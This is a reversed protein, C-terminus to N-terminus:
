KLSELYTLLAQLDGGAISNPPMRNGPKISQSDLIWGALHGRQNPLTGAAITGRTALHTLDPGLVAGAITGRITHCQTCTSHLFVDRGRMQEESTPQPAEKRQDASWNEFEAQSEATVYLAMKAHQYGCFEACQGRYFGPKDAQLWISTTYGPILDRKGHLNPVWFSHIVDRSTVKFVVPRGVPIHLENATRFRQSPVAAEYEAEWWWQHGILNIVVAADQRPSAIARGTFVTAVLLVFLIVVTAGVALTVGVNLGAEHPKPDELGGHEVMADREAGRVADPALGADSRTQTKVRIETSADPQLRIESRHESRVRWRRRGRLVAVALFAMTLVFVAAVVWFQLWWLREINAAQPGAAQLASQAVAANLM